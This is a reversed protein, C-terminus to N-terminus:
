QLSVSEPCTPSPAPSVAFVPSSVWAWQAVDLQELGGGGWSVSSAEAGCAQVSVAGM